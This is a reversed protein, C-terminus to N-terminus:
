SIVFKAIMKWIEKPLWLHTIQPVCWLFCWCAKVNRFHEAIERIHAQTEDYSGSDRALKVPLRDNNGLSISHLQTLTEIRPSIFGINNNFLQLTELYPLFEIFDPIERLFNHCFYLRLLMRCEWVRDPIANIRNRIMSLERLEAIKQDDLRDLKGKAGRTTLKKDCLSLTTHFKRERWTKSQKSAGEM